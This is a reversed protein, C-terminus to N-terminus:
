PKGGDCTSCSTVKREEKSQDIDMDVFDAISIRTDRPVEPPVVMRQKTQANMDVSVFSSLVAGGSSVEGQVRAGEERQERGFRPVKSCCGEM